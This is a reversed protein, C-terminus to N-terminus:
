DGEDGRSKKGVAGDEVLYHSISGRGNGGGYDRRMPLALGSDDELFFSQPPTVDPFIIRWVHMWKGTESLGVTDLKRLQGRQYMNIGDIHGPARLSCARERIHVDRESLNEFVQSCAPCYPPKIHLQELHNVLDGMSRVRHDRACSHYKQSNYVFFPCALDFHGQVRSIIIPQLDEKDEELQVISSGRRGSSSRLRKVTPSTYLHNDPPPARKASALWTAVEPCASKALSQTATILAKSQSQVRLTRTLGVGLAKAEHLKRLLSQSM